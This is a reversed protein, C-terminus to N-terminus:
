RLNEKISLNWVRAVNVRLLKCRMGAMTCVYAYRNERKNEGKINENVRMESKGM